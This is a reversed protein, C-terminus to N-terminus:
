FFASVSFFSRRDAPTQLLRILHRHLRVALIHRHAYFQWHTHSLSIYGWSVLLALFVFHLLASFLVSSVLLRLWCPFATCFVHCWARLMFCAAQLMCYSARLYCSPVCSACMAARKFCLGIVPLGSWGLSPEHSVCSLVVNLVDSACLLVGLLGTHLRSICGNTHVSRSSMNIYICAYIYICTAVYQKCTAHVTCM